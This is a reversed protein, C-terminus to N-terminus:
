DMSDSSNKENFFIIHDNADYINFKNWNCYVYWHNDCNVPLDLHFCNQM